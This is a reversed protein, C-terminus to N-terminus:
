NKVQTNKQHFYIRFQISISNISRANWHGINIILGDSITSSSNTLSTVEHDTTSIHTSQYSFNTVPTSHTDSQRPKIHTGARRSRNRFLGLNKITTFTDYPLWTSAKNRLSLVENRSNQLNITGIKTTHQPQSSYTWELLDTGNLNFQQLTSTMSTTM